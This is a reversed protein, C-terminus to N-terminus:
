HNKQALQMRSINRARNDANLELIEDGIIKDLKPGAWIEVHDNPRIASPLATDRAGDAQTEVEM